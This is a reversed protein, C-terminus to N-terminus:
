ETAGTAEYADRLEADDEIEMLERFEDPTLISGDPMIIKPQPLAEGPEYTPLTGDDRMGPPPQEAIEQGEEKRAM